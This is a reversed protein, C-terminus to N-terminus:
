RARRARPSPCYVGAVLLLPAVTLPAMETEQRVSRWLLSECRAMGEQSLGALGTGTRLNYVKLRGFHCSSLWPRHTRHALMPAQSQPQGQISVQRHPVERHGHRSKTDRLPARGPLDLTHRQRFAQIVQEPTTCGCSGALYRDRAYTVFFAATGHGTNCCTSGACGQQLSLL